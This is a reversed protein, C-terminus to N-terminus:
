KKKNKISAIWQNFEKLLSDHENVLGEMKNRQVAVNHLNPSRMGMEKTMQTQIVYIKGTIDYFKRRYENLKQRNEQSDIGNEELFRHYEDNKEQQITLLDESNSIVAEQQTQAFAFGSTLLILTLLFYFKKM